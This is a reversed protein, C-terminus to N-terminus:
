IILQCHLGLQVFSTKLPCTFSYCSLIHGGQMNQMGLCCIGLAHWTQCICLATKGTKTKTCHTQKTCQVLFANKLWKIQQQHTISQNRDIHLVVYTNLKSWKSRSMGFSM